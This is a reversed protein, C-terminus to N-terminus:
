HFPSRAIIFRVLIIVLPILFTGVIELVLGYGVQRLDYYTVLCYYDFRSAWLVIVCGSGWLGSPVHLYEYFTVM